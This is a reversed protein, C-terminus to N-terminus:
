PSPTVGLSEVCSRLGQQLTIKPAWRLRRLLNSSISSRRIQGFRDDVFQLRPTKNAIGALVEILKLVSAEEEGAINFVGTQKSELICLIGNAVYELHTYCRTQQGDGHIHIVDDM